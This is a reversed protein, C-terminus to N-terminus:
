PPRLYTDFWNRLERSVFAGHYTITEGQQQAFIGILLDDEGHFYHIFLRHSFAKGLDVYCSFIIRPDYDPMPIYPRTDRCARAFELIIRQKEIIAIPDTHYQRLVFIKDIRAPELSQLEDLLATGGVHLSLALYASYAVLHAALGLIVVLAYPKEAARCKLHWWLGSWYGIFAGIAGATYLTVFRDQERFFWFGLWIGWLLGFLTAAPIRYNDRLYQLSRNGAM